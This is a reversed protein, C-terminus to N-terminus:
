DREWIDKTEINKYGGVWLPIKIDEWEHNYEISQSSLRTPLIKTLITVINM